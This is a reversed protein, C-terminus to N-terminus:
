LFSKATAFKLQRSQDKTTTSAFFLPAAFHDQWSIIDAEILEANTM